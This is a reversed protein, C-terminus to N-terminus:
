LTGEQVTDPSQTRQRKKGLTTTKASKNSPKWEGVEEDDVWADAEGEEDEYKKKREKKSLIHKPGKYTLGADIM